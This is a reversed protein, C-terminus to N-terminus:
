VKGNRIQDLMADAQRAAYSKAETAQQGPRREQWRCKWGALAASLSVMRNKGVKWGNSEYHYFFKEAESEPLGIKQAAFKVEELSPTLM